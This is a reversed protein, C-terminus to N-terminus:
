TGLDNLAVRVLDDLARSMEEPLPNPQHEQLIAKARENARKEFNKSGKAEWAERSGRYLLHPVYREGRLFKLTHPDTLFNNGPGVRDIADVALREEDIEFGELARVATRHIEDDIVLQEHSIVLSEQLRNFTKENENLVKWM